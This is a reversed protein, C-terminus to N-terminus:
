SMLDKVIKKLRKYNEIDADFRENEADMWEEVDVEVIDRMKLLFSRIPTSVPNLNDLTLKELVKFEESGIIHMQAKQSVEYKMIYITRLM